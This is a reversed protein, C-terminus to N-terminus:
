KIESCIYSDATLRQIFKKIKRKLTPLRFMSRQWTIPHKCVSKKVVTNLDASLFFVFFYISLVRKM